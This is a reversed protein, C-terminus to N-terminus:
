RRALVHAPGVVSRGGVGASDRSIPERGAENVKVFRLRVNGLLRLSKRLCKAAPAQRNASGYRVSACDRRLFTLIVSTLHMITRPVHSQFRMLISVSAPM